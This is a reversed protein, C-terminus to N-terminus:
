VSSVIVSFAMVSAEVATRVPGCGSDSSADFLRVRLVSPMVQISLRGNVFGRSLPNPLQFVIGILDYRSAQGVRTFVLRSGISLAPYM